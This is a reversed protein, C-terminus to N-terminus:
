VQQRPMQDVPDPFVVLRHLHRERDALRISHRRPRNMLHFGHGVAVNELHRSWVEVVDHADLVTVPAFARAGRSWKSSQMFTMMGSAPFPVRSRGCVCM